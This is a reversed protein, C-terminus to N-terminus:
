AAKRPGLTVQLRQGVAAAAKALTALTVSENDPDLLRDVQSRSTGMRRALAAKSLNQKAMIRELEHAILRKAALAEVDELIGEERLFDDFDSGRNKKM